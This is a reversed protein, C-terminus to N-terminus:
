YTIARSSKIINGNGDVIHVVISYDGYARLGMSSFKTAYYTPTYKIVESLNNINTVEIRYLLSYIYNSIKLRSGGYYDEISIDPADITVIPVTPSVTPTATPLVTPSPSATSWVPKYTIVPTNTPIAPETPVVTAIPIKVEANINEAKCMIGIIFVFIVMLIIKNLRNDLM